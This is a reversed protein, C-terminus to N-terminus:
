SPLRALVGDELWRVLLSGIERAAGEPELDDELAACLVSFPVGLELLPFVRRETAGIAAHSVDSGERWVRITVPRPEPAAPGDPADRTAAWIEHVPWACEVLRCAPIARLALAPWDEPAVGQLDAMRLPEADADDFVDLRAWELRALDGLWPPGAREARVFDAFRDGVYRVSPHVSPHRALYRGALAEFEDDGLIVAVRPFDERLIDALRARYMDRYIQIRPAAGLRGDERVLGLLVADIAAPATSADPAALEATLAARFRLQLERLPLM